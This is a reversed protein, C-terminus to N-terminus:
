KNQQITEQKNVWNKSKLENVNILLIEGILKKRNFLHKKKKRYLFSSFSLLM